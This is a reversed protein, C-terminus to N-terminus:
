LRYTDILYIEEDHNSEKDLLTQNLYIGQSSGHVELREDQDWKVAVISMERLNTVQKLEKLCDEKNIAQMDSVNLIKLSTTSPPVKTKLRQFENLCQSM